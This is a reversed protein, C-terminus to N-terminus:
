HQAKDINRRTEQVFPLHSILKFMSKNYTSVPFPLPRIFDVFLVVRVEDSDNWAEHPYSDDFILSKGEEWYGMDSGVRIRCAGEPGPVKLGLHYRLVGKYPGRHEPIHKHPAFISFFATTMGPITEVLEATKPCRACNEDFRYGYGHLFFTKWKDDTTLSEQTPSLEQFNRLKDRELLIQDLEVRIDRWNEELHAAWPFHAPDFFTGNGVLSYRHIPWEITNLTKLLLNGIIDSKEQNLARM